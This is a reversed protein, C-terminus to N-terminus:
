AQSSLDQDHQSLCRLMSGFGRVVGLAFNGHYLLGQSHSPPLAEHEGAEIRGWKSIWAAMHEDPFNEHFHPTECLSVSNM